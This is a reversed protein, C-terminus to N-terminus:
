RVLNFVTSSLQSCGVMSFSFVLVLFALFGLSSYADRPEATLGVLVVFLATLMDALVQNLLFSCLLTVRSLVASM